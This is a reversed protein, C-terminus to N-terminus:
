LSICRSFLVHKSKQAFEFIPLFHIAFTDLNGKQKLLQKTLAASYFNFFFDFVVLVFKICVQYVLFQTKKCVNCHLIKRKKHKM